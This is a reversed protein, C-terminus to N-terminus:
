IRCISFLIRDSNQIYIKKKKRRFTNSNERREHVANEDNHANETTYSKYM